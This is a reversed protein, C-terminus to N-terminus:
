MSAIKLQTSLRTEKLLKLPLDVNAKCWGEAWVPFLVTPLNKAEDWSNGFHALLQHWFAWKAVVHHRDEQSGELCSRQAVESCYNDGTRTNKQLYLHWLKMQFFCRGLFATYCAVCRWLLFSFINWVSKTQMLSPVFIHAWTSVYCWEYILRTPEQSSMASHMSCIHIHIVLYSFISRIRCM